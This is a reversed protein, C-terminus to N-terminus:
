AGKSLMYEVVRDTLREVEAVSATPHLRKVQESITYRRAISKGQSRLSGEMAAIASELDPAQGTFAHYRGQDAVSWLVIGSDKVESATMVMGQITTASFGTSRTYACREAIGDLFGAEYAQSAHVRRPLRAQADAKGDMYDNREIGMTM